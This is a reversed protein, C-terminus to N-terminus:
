VSKLSALRQFVLPEIIQPIFATLRRGHQALERILTSSILRYNEDPVMYLTEVGSIKRNMSALVIESEFDVPNRIARIICSINNERLYDVLLGNFSVIHLQSIGQTIQKLLEVREEPSFAPQKKLSNQGVGVYLIPFLKAARQIIDLHGLTPPDFTGPFIAALM